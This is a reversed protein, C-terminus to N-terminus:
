SVLKMMAGKNGMLMYSIRVMVLCNMEKTSNWMGSYIIYPKTKEWLMMRQLLFLM